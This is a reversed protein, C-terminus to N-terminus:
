WSDNQLRLRLSDNIKAYVIAWYILFVIPLFVLFEISNFLM